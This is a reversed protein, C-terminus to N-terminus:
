YQCRYCEGCGVVEARYELPGGYSEPRQKLHHNTWKGGLEELEFSSCTHVRHEPPTMKGTLVDLCLRSVLLEVHGVSLPGYPQFETGCGPEVKVKTDGSFDTDSEKLFGDYDFICSLGPSDSTTALAHGTAGQTGLWGYVIPARKKSSQHWADLALDESPTAVCNVFLDVDELVSPSQRLVTQWRTGFAKFSAHPYRSGLIATVHAAKSKSVSEMGLAHRGINSTVLTEPDIIGISGVGAQALRAAVQSGLSGAGIVVVKSKALKGHDADLGRGHVWHSDARSTRLKELKSYSWAYGLPPPRNTRFGQISFAPIRAGIHGKGAHCRFFLCFLTDEFPSIRSIVSAIDPCNELLGRRFQTATRPLPLGPASQIEGVIVQAPEGRPSVGVNKLWAILEPENEAIVWQNQFRRAVALRTESRGPDLLLLANNTADHNWYTAFEELSEQKIYEEDLCSSLLETALNLRQQLSYEVSEIPRWGSSSLCLVGHREVHPWDLHRDEATYAIRIHSFPFDEDLLVELPWESYDPKFAWGCRIRHTAYRELYIPSLASVSDSYSRLWASAQNRCKEFLDDKTLHRKHM